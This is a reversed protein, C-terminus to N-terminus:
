LIICHAVLHFAYEGCCYRSKKMGWNAAIQFPLLLVVNSRINLVLKVNVLVMNNNKFWNMSTLHEVSFCTLFSFVRDESCSKFVMYYTLSLAASCHFSFSYNSILLPDVERISHILSPEWMTDSITNKYFLNFAVKVTSNGSSQTSKSAILM